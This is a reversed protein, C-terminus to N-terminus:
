IWFITGRASADTAARIARLYLAIQARYEDIRPAIELDTKFDIVNWVPGAGNAEVFILDAIGEVVAGDELTVLLPCERRVDPSKRVRALLPSKLAAAVARAAAEIEADDAGLMRGEGAAAARVQEAGADLAIRLMTMHVLTGFRPGHPRGQERETEIVEIAEAGELRHKLKALETATKVIMAPAKGAELM